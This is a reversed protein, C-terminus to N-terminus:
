DELMAVARAIDSAFTREAQAKARAESARKRCNESCYRCDRRFAQFEKRCRQCTHISAM